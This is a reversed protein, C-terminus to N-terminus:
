VPSRSVIVAVILIKMILEAFDSSSRITEGM